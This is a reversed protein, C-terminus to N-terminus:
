HEVNKRFRLADNVRRLIPEEIECKSLDLSRYTLDRAPLVKGAEPCIEFRPPNSDYLRHLDARLLIGNTM